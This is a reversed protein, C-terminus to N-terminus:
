NEGMKKRAASAIRLSNQAFLPGGIAAVQRARGEVLALVGRGNTEVMDSLHREIETDTIRRDQMDTIKM